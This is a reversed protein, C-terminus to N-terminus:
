TSEPYLRMSKRSKAERPFRRRSFGGKQLSQPRSQLGPIHSGLTSILDDIDVPKTVYDDMGAALCKEREGKMAHATMAIIPIHTGTEKEKERIVSTAEFGDMHPMQVDMLVVDFPENEKVKVSPMLPKAQSLETKSAACEVPIM